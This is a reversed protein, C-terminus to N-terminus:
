GKADRAARIKKAQIAAAALARGLRAAVVAPVPFRHLVGQETMSLWVMVGDDATHVGWTHGGHEIKTEVTM